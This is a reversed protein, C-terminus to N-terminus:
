LEWFFFFVGVCLERLEAENCARALALCSSDAFAGTAYIATAMKQSRKWAAAVQAEGGTVDIDQMGTAPKGGRSARRGRQPCPKQDLSDIGKVALAGKERGIDNGLIVVAPVMCDVEKALSSNPGGGGQPVTGASNQPDRGPGCHVDTNHLRDLQAAAAAATAGQAGDLRGEGGADEQSCCVRGPAGPASAQGFGGLEACNADAPKHIVLSNSEAGPADLTHTPKDSPNTGAPPLSSERGQTTQLPIVHQPTESSPDRRLTSGRTITDQVDKATKGAMDALLLSRTVTVINGAGSNKYMFISFLAHHTPM